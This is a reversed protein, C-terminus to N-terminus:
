APLGQATTPPASWSDCVVKPYRAVSHWASRCEQSGDEHMSQRAWWEKRRLGGSLWHAVLRCSENAPQHQCVGRVYMFPSSSAISECDRRQWKMIELRTQDKSPLIASKTGLKPSSFCVNKARMIRRSSNLTQCFM